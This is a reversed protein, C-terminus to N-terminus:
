LPFDGGTQNQQNTPQMQQPQGSVIVGTIDDDDDGALLTNQMETKKLTRNTQEVAYRSVTDAVGEGGVFIGILTVIETAKEPFMTVLALGAVTLLFKRSSLRAIFNGIEKMDSNYCWFVFFWSM